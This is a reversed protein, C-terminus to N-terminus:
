SVVGLQTLRISMAVASVQFIKACEEIDETARWARLALAKPMLLSAAFNNAEREIRTDAVDDLSYLMGGSNLTAEGDVIGKDSQLEEQHLFYHGLEHGLTFHQRTQPKTTNILITFRKDQFLTAGSITEDELETFIIDLDKHKNLVHYQPFPSVKDPNYLKAYEEALSRVQALTM